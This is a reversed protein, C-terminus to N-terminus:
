QQTPPKTEEEREEEEEVTSKARTEMPKLENEWLASSAARKRGGGIIWWGLGSQGETTGTTVTTHNMASSSTTSVSTFKSFFGKRRLPAQADPAKEDLGVEEFEEPTPTEAPLLPGMCHGHHTQKELAPRGLHPLSSSDSSTRTTAERLVPSRASIDFSRQYSDFSERSIGFAEIDGTSSATDTSTRSTDYQRPWFDKEFTPSPPLYVGSDNVVSMKYIGTDLSRSRGSHISLSSPTRSGTTDVRMFGRHPDAGESRVKEDIVATTAGPRRAFPNRFLAM